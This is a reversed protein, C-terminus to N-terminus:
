IVSTFFTFIAHRLLFCILPPAPPPRTRSVFHALRTSPACKRRAPGSSAFKERSKKQRTEDLLKLLCFFFFLVRAIEKGKQDNPFSNNVRIFTFFYSFIPRFLYYSVFSRSSRLLIIREFILYKILATFLTSISRLYVSKRSSRPLIMPINFPLFNSHCPATNAYRIIRPPPAFNNAFDDLIPDVADRTTSIRRNFSPTFHHFSTYFFM